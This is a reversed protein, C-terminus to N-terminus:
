LLMRVSLNCLTCCCRFVCTVPTATTCVYMSIPQLPQQLVFPLDCSNRCCVSCPHALFPLFQQKCHILSLVSWLQVNRPVTGIELIHLCHSTMLCSCQWQSSTLLLPSSIQIEPPPPCTWLSDALHRRIMRGNSKGLMGPFIQQFLVVANTVKRKFSHRMHRYRTGFNSPEPMFRDFCNYARPLHAGLRGDSIGAM